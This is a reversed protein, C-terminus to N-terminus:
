IIKFSVYVNPPVHKFLLSLIKVHTYDTNAFCIYYKQNM